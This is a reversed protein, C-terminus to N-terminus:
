QYVGPKKFVFSTSHERLPVADPVLGNGQWTVAQDPYLLEETSLKLVDGNSLKFVEQVMAKGASTTGETTARGASSLAAIFLEAASATLGDQRIVISRPADAAMGAREAHRLRAADRTRGHALPAGQPLFLAACRLAAEMDGGTNGRMDVILRKPKAALVSALAERLRAPVPPSFGYLRIRAEEPTNTEVQVLPPSVRERQVSITRVENQSKDQPHLVALEVVTGAEGRVLVALDDIDAGSVDYGDVKLLVDGYAIGNRAAPGAAYPICIARGEQDYVIDMGVGYGYRERMDRLEELEAHPIYAAYPDFARLFANLGERNRLAPDDMGADLVREAPPRLAHWRGLELIERVPPQAAAPPPAFVWALALAWALARATRALAGSLAAGRVNRAGRSFSGSM